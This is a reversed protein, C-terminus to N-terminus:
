LVYQFLKTCCDADKKVHYQMETQKRTNACKKYKAKDIVVFKHAANYQEKKFEQALSNDATYTVSYMVM